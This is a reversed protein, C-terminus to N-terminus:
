GTIWNIDPDPRYGLEGYQRYLYNNFHQWADEDYEKINDLARRIAVNIKDKKKKYGSDSRFKKIAGGKTVTDKLYKDIQELQKELSEVHNLGQASGTKKVEEIEKILQDRYTVLTKKKEPSIMSRHDLRGRRLKQRRAEEGGSNNSGSGIAFVPLIEAEEEESV